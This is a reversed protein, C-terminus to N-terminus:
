ELAAGRPTPPEGDERVSRGPLAEPWILEVGREQETTVLVGAQNLADLLGHCMEVIASGYTLRKRETRALIGQLTVKLANESTLNGIKARVVGAALAPTSSLKDMAERVEAIHSEESPSSADGGFEDISANVDHTMWVTGPGVTSRDFGEIGKALYMKFCQMTVRNARDSLRTNLENQLPILPEVESAGGLQMPVVTNRIHAVPLVGPCLADQQATLMARGREDIAYWQTAYASIVELTVGALGPVDPEDSSMSRSARPGRVAGGGAGADGEARKGLWSAVRSALSRRAAGGDTGTVVIEREEGCGDLGRRWAASRVGSSVGSRAESAQHEHVILLAAPQRYDNVSAIAAARQPPVLMVRVGLAGAGRQAVLQVSGFVHALVAADHLLSMGGSENWIQRLAGEIEQARQSDAAKSAIRLPKGFLFDIMTGVRWAIDNEIVIERQAGLGGEPLHTLRRPLGREQALRLPRESQPHLTLMNRYYAWLLRRMPAGNIHDRVAEAVSSATLEPTRHVALSLGRKGGPDRVGWQGDAEHTAAM